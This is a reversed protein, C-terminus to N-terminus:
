RLRCSTPKLRRKTRLVCLVVMGFGRLNVQWHGTIIGFALAVGLLMGFIALSRSLEQGLLMALSWLLIAIGSLTTGAQAFTRNRGTKSRAKRSYPSGRAIRVSLAHREGVGSQVPERLQIDPPEAEPDLM